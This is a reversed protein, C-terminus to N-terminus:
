DRGGAANEDHDASDEQEWTRHEYVPEDRQTELVRRALEADDIWRFLRKERLGLHRRLIFSALWGAHAVARSQELARLDAKKGESLGDPSLSLIYREGVPVMDRALSRLHQFQQTSNESLRGFRRQRSIMHRIATYFVVVGILLLVTSSWSLEIKFLPGLGAFIQVKLPLLGLRLLSQWSALNLSLVFDEANCPALNVPREFASAINAVDNWANYFGIRAREYRNLVGTLEGELRRLERAADGWQESVRGRLPGKSQPCTFGSAVERKRIAQSTAAFDSLYSGIRAAELSLIENTASRVGPDRVTSQYYFLPFSCLVLVGVARALSLLYLPPRYSMHRAALRRVISLAVILLVVVPVWIVATEDFREVFLALIAVTGIATLITELVGDLFFRINM